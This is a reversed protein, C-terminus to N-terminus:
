PQTEAQASPAFLAELDAVISNFTNTRESDSAYEKKLDTEIKEQAQAADLILNRQWHLDEVLHTANQRTKARQVFKDLMDISSGASDVIKSTAQVTTNVLNLATVITNATTRAITM